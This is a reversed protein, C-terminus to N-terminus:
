RKKLLKAPNGAVITYAKVDRTVVSGAGVIAGKGITVGKLIIAKDGILVDDGITIPKKIVTLGQKNMPIKKSAFTHDVSIISVDNAILVDSGIIIGSAGYFRCNKGILVDKGIRVNAVDQLLFSTFVELNEGFTAGRLSLALRNKWYIFSFVTSQIFAFLTNM